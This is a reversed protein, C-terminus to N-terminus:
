WRAGLQLGFAAHPQPSAGSLGLWVGGAIAAAGGVALSVAGVGTLPAARDYAGALNSWPTGDAASEVTDLDVLGAALMVAGAIAVIVGTITLVAAPTTDPPAPATVPPAAPESSAPAALSSPAEFVIPLAEQEGGRVTWQGDWSRAATRVQVEHRGVTLLLTGDPEVEAEHGDVVIRAGEPVAALDYRGVFGYARELIGTAEARQEETLPRTEHALAARLSHIADPYDRIEFAVMGIGRLARANPFVEHARRFLVRAEEFRGAASESLAQEILQEYEAPPEAEQASCFTSVGLLLLGISFGVFRM